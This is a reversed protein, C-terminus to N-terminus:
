GKRKRTARQLLRYRNGCETCAAIMAGKRTQKLEGGCDCKVAKVREQMMANIIKSNNRRKPGIGLAKLTKAYEKAVWPECDGDGLMDGLKILQRHLADKPSQNM